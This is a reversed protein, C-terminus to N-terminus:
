IILIQFHSINRTRENYHRKVLQSHREISQQQSRSRVTRRNQTANVFLDAIPQSRRNFGWLLCRATTTSCRATVNHLYRVIIMRREDAARQKNETTKRETAEGRRVVLLFLFCTVVCQAVSVFLSPSLCFSFFTFLFVLIASCSCVRLTVCFLVPLPRLSCFILFCVFLLVFFFPM